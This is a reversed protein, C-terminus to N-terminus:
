KSYAKLGAAIQRWVEGHQEPTSLRGADSESILQAQIEGMVGELGKLDLSSNLQATRAIIAQADKLSGSAIEGAVTEFTGALAATKAKDASSSTCWQTVNGSWTGTTPPPNPTVGPTVPVPTVTAGGVQVQILDAQVKGDRIYAAFITYIGPEEFSAVLNENNDGYVQINKNDPLTKWEVQEGQVSLRIMEGVRATSPGLIDSANVVSDVVPTEEYISVGVPVAFGVLAVLLALYQTVKKKM